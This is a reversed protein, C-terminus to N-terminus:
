EIQNMHLVWIFNCLIRKHHCDNVIFMGESNCGFFEGIFCKSNVHDFALVMCKRYKSVKETNRKSIGFAKTFHRTIYLEVVRNANAAHTKVLTDYCEILQPINPQLENRNQHYMYLCTGSFCLWNYPNFNLISNTSGILDVTDEPLKRCLIVGGNKPIVFNNFMKYDLRNSGKKWFEEVINQIYGNM